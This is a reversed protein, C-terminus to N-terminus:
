WGAAAAFAVIAQADAPSLALTDPLILAKDRLGPLM